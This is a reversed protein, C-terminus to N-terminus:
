NEDFEYYEGRELDGERCILRDSWDAYREGNRYYGRWIVKGAEDMEEFFGNEVGNMLHGRLTIQGYEDMREVLGSLEGKSYQLRIHPIGDNVIIAEGERKGNVLKVRMVCLSHTGEYCVICDGNLGDDPREESAEVYDCLFGQNSSNGSFTINPIM